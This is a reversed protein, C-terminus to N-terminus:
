KYTERLYYGIGRRTHILRPLDPREVKQRLFRIFTELNNETVERDPWISAILYDKRSVRGASRMLHELIAFETRTLDLRDGARTAERKESDLCLDAFRLIGGGARSIARTRARLRAVLVEFHFPKQLYDDAGAELGRVIDQTAGLGSLLIIPPQFGKLRLRKTVEVGDLVPMVVDLVLLDFTQEEALLLASGGDFCTSVLCGETELYASAVGIFERDDDVLLVRAGPLKQDLLRPEV